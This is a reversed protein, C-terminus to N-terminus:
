DFRQDWTMEPITAKCRELNWRCYRQLEASDYGPCDKALRYLVAAYTAFTHCHVDTERRSALSLQRRAICGHTYANWEDCIMLPQATWYESRGQRLYTDYISGRKHAPVSGLVQETTLPPTPIFQRRGDLVYIGHYGQRWKSLFHTGEHTYTILDADRADTGRPLRSAVDRLIAPFGAPPEWLVDQGLVRGCLLALWLAFLRM